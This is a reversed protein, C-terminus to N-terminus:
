WLGVRDEPALWMKDGPGTGFADHWADVHPLIGNVRWESLSHEDVKTRKIIEDPRINATETGAYAIFFRQDGTYNGDAAPAGYKKFAAFSITLGGYDALNEGLTFKGNAFMGPAVEIEDFWKRMVRARRDFAAADDKTWWETMNGKADFHRGSDDFGHTMEHGIVSGIAGYNFADDANMDFFPPQLIGAPFCIENQSPDYYANVEHANLYWVSRDVVRGNYKEILWDDMFRAARELDAYLSDGKIELKSYDRPQDPYGIKVRFAALKELASKKTEPSMWDNARIREGLALRLNEVLAAMRKKAEPPFYKKVYLQGVAEGLVDNVLGAADKWRPRRELKGAMKKGYFDFNLDYQADGLETMAGNAIRWKLYAKLVSQDKTQLSRLVKEIPEPQGVDIFDPMAGRAKFYGDWDFGSFQKKLEALSMKHYNAIPDRLKEKPYFSKAMELELDYVASAPADKIGFMDFAAAMYKKYEARIQKSKEDDDLFYDRSIGIGGQGVGWVYHESDKSDPVVNSSFFATITRHMKGIMAPTAGNKDIEAFDALVPAIGDANRKEYDMSQNYIAAIKYELSGPANKAAAVGTILENTQTLVEQGLKDFTGFQSYEGTLPNANRWGATAFEYFDDQPRVAANLNEYKIGDNM